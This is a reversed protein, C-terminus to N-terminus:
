HRFRLPRVSSAEQSASGFCCVCVFLLTLLGKANLVIGTLTGWISMVAYADQFDFADLKHYAFLMPLDEALMFALNFSTDIAIDFARKQAGNGVQCMKKLLSAANLFRM